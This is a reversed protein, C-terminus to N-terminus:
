LSSEESSVAICKRICPMQRLKKNGKGWTPIPESGVETGVTSSLGEGGLLGLGPSYWIGRVQTQSMGPGYSSETIFLSVLWTQHCPLLGVLCPHKGWIFEQLQHEMGPTKGPPLVFLPHQENM